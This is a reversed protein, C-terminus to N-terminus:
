RPVWTTDHAVESDVTTVLKSTGQPDGAVVIHTAAKITYSLVPKDAAVPMSLTFTTTSTAEKPRLEGMGAVPVDKATLMGEVQLCPAGYIQRVAKLTTSGSVQSPDVTPPNTRDNALAQKNIPWSDGVKKKDATGYLADTVAMKQFAQQLATHAEPSLAGNNKLKFTTGGGENGSYVLSLESGPELLVTPTVREALAEGNATQLTLKRITVSAQTEKDDAKDIHVDADLLVRRIFLNQSGKGDPLDVRQATRQSDTASVTFTQGAQFPRQLRIDYSGDDAAGLLPSALMLGVLLRWRNRMVM